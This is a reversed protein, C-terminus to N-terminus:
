WIKAWSKLFHWHSIDHLSKDPNLCRLAYPCRILCLYPNESYSNRVSTDPFWYIRLCRTLIHKNRLLADWLKSVKLSATGWPQVIGFCSRGKWKCESLLTCQPTWHSGSTHCWSLSSASVCRFIWSVEPGCMLVFVNRRLKKFFILFFMIKALM